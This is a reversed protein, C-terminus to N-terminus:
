KRSACIDRLELLSFNLWHKPGCDIEREVSKLVSCSISDNFTVRIGLVEICAFRGRSIFTCHEDAERKLFLWDLPCFSIEVPAQGFRSKFEGYAFELATFYPRETATPTSQPM